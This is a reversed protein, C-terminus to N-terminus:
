NGASRTPVVVTTTIKRKVTHNAPVHNRLVAGSAIQVRDGIKLYPEIFVGTGMRVENGVRVIGSAVCGPGTSINSGLVCHHDFSNYASFFNNDGISAETGFHCFACIVNGTGITVDSSLRATRDIANALPIGLENCHTRFKARVAVCTSIAVIASDFHGAEFLEPLRDSGGIVPVGYVAKGVLTLDDDVIAVPTKTPDDRLIDLVQNAGFRAGILVVRETEHTPTLPSLQPRPQPDTTEAIAAEVDALTILHTCALTTLDFGTRAALALAPKTARYSPQQDTTAQDAPAPGQSLHSTLAELTDFVYGAPDGIQVEGGEPTQQLLYGSAPSVIEIAAKSTEVDLVAFGEQVRARDPLNWGVVVCHTSNADTATVLIPIM